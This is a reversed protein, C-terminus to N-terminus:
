VFLAIKCFETFSDFMKTLYIKLFKIKMGDIGLDRIKFNPKNKERAKNKPSFHPFNPENECITVIQRIREVVTSLIRTILISHHTNRSKHIKSILNM